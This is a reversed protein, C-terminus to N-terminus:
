FLTQKKKSLTWGHGKSNSCKVGTKEVQCTFGDKQWSKGYQVVPNTPAKITDGYCAREPKNTQNMFFVNGWDLECDKPRPPLKALNEGLECRLEKEYVLCHINGTPSQFTEGDAAQAVAGQCCLAAVLSASWGDIWLNRM